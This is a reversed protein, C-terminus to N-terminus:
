INNKTFITLSLEFSGFSVRSLPYILSIQKEVTFPIHVYFYCSFFNVFFSANFALIFFTLFSKLNVLLLPHFLFYNSRFGGTLDTEKIPLM